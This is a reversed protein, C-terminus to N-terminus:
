ARMDHEQARILRLGAIGQFFQPLQNNFGPLGRETGAWGGPEGGVALAELHHHEAPMIQGCAHQRQHTAM